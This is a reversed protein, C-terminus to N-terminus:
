RQLTSGNANLVLLIESNVYDIWVTFNRLFTTGILGDSDAGSYAARQEVLYGYFNAFTAHAMQVKQLKYPKIALKGGVGYGFTATREEDNANGTDVLAHPNRRAYRDFILLGGENGTDVLFHEGPYGNITVTTEPVQEGLRVDLTVRKVTPSLGPSGNELATVRGREYDLRLMLEAIFDFGLLGAVHVDATDDPLGPASQVVVDRMKLEGVDMEPVVATVETFRGANAANVGRALEHLGLKAIVDNYIIIGAAGTDLLFDLGRGNIVVRVYFEDNHFTVPLEVSTKGPPFEVLARRPNPIDLDAKAIPRSTLSVVREDLADEEHGDTVKWHRASTYGDLTRFDDYATVETQAASIKEVRVVHFTAPDVYTKTGFGARNLEAIVYANVPTAVRSVTTTLAEGAAVGPDPEDLVVQGNANQHWAQGGYSGSATAYPGTGDNQRFDDGSRLIEREGIGSSSTVRLVERMAAPASGTAAAIKARLADVSPVTQADARPAVLLAAAFAFLVLLQVFRRM